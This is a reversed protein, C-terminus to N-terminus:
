MTWRKEGEITREQHRAPGPLTPRQGPEACFAEATYVALHIGDRTVAKFVLYKLLKHLFPFTLEPGTQLAPQRSQGCM